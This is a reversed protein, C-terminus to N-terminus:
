QKLFILEKVEVMDQIRYPAFFDIRRMQGHRFRNFVYFFGLIGAAIDLWRISTM